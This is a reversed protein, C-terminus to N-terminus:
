VKVEFLHVPKARGTLAREGLDHFDFGGEEGVAERVERTALIQGPRAIAELRAAVNVTDGIATFEMRTESGVNGVVAEGAHVGIALEITVGYKERWGANGAELWRMMDEACALARAAHDAHPTPAGFLAMVCDGVFKDITGGHRFVIETLITFLENLLGVVEEPALRDTIPTFAVVDAFLVSLEGRRGGLAMDQERRVVKEVVEAPLYRGLDTRIAVEHEIRAESEELDAAAQSMVDGLVRFEDRTELTVRKDFRRSALDQAFSALAQIPRTIQKAVLVALLLALAIVVGITVFVIWRMRHLSAYVVEEPVQAVVAWSRGQLGVITGVMERGDPAAYEGSQQFRGSVAGPDVGALIGQGAVSELRAARAADPHALLRQQEDVLFLADPRGEFRVEHLRALRAQLGELSLLTAVFGTLEGRARLPVVLPVRPTGPGPRAEGTAVNERAARERLAADLREPVAPRPRGEERVLDILEGEADYIAAHDVDERGAVVSAALGATAEPPLTPDTLVRGVEDLADQAAVFHREVGGALDDAVALQLERANTRVTDANVDLLLWGVVILPAVALAAGLLTLKLRFPVPPRAVGRRTM